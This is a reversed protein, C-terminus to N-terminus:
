KIKGIILLFDSFHEKGNEEENDEARAEEQGEGGAGATDEHTALGTDKGDKHMGEDEVEEVLMETTCVRLIVILCM